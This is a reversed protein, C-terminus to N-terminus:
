HVSFGGCSQLFDAFESLMEDSVGFLILPEVPKRGAAKEVQDILKQMATGIPSTDAKSLTKGDVNHELYQVIRAAIKKSQKADAGFGCNVSIDEFFSEPMFDSCTDEMVAVIPHWSWVSARFYEGKPGSPANGVVDMGM